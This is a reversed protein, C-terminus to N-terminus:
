NNIFNNNRINLILTICVGNALKQYYMLQNQLATPHIFVGANPWYVYPSNVDAGSEFFPNQMEVDSPSSDPIKVSSLPSPSEDVFEVDDDSLVESKVENMPRDSAYVNGHKRLLRIKLQNLDRICLNLPEEQVTKTPSVVCGKKQSEQTLRKELLSSIIRNQVNTRRVTSDKQKPGKKPEEVLNKPTGPFITGYNKYILHCIDAKKPKRGRRPKSNDLTMEGMYPLDQYKVIRPQTQNPSPLQQFAEKKQQNEQHTINSQVIKQKRQIEQQM